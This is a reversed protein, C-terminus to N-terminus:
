GLNAPDSFLLHELDHPRSLTFLLGPFPHHCLRREDPFPERSLWDLHFSKDSRHGQPILFRVDCM